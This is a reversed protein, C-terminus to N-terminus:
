QKLKRKFDTERLRISYYSNIIHHREFHLCTKKDKSDSRGTIITVIKIDMKVLDKM